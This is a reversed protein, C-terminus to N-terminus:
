PQGPTLGKEDALHQRYHILDVASLEELQNPKYWDLFRNVDQAYGRVTLPSLDERALARVFEKVWPHDGAIAAPPQIERM